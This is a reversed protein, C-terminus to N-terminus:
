TEETVEEFLHLYVEWDPDWGRGPYIDSWIREFEKPSACGERDYHKDAVVYLPVERVDTLEYIRKYGMIDEVEFWDGPSGYQETRTTATKEGATLRARSWKNMPLDIKNSDSM